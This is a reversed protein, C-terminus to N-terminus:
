KKMSLRMKLTASDSGRHPGSDPSELWEEIKEFDDDENSVDSIKSETEIGNRKSETQGENKKSETEIGNRKLESQDENRKLETEIGNRKSENPQNEKLWLSIDNSKYIEPLEFPRANEVESRVQAVKLWNCIPDQWIKQYLPFLNSYGNKPDMAASGEKEM